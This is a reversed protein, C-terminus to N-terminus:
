VKGLYFQSKRLSFINKWSFAGSLVSHCWTWIQCGGLTLHVSKYLSFASGPFAGSLVLFPALDLNQVKRLEHKYFSLASGPLAGSLVLLSWNIHRCLSFTGGLLSADIHSISKKLLKVAGVFDEETVAAEFRGYRQQRGQQRAARSGQQRAARSSQEKSWVLANVNASSWVV